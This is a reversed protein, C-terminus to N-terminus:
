GFRRPFFMKLLMYPRVRYFIQLTMLGSILYSTRELVDLKATRLNELFEEPTDFSEMTTFARGLSPIRHADSGACTLKNYKEALQRTRDEDEIVTNRANIVELIDVSPMIEHLVKEDIRSPIRRSLPHPIMVLGGQEKINDAAVQATTFNPVEEKLFLGIIEGDKTWVEEGVIVQLDTDLKEVELAGKITGHDTVAVADIGKLAADKALAEPTIRSDPSFITHVHLDAKILNMM